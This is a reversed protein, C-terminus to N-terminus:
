NMTRGDKAHEICLECTPCDQLNGRWLDRSKEMEKFRESISFGMMLFQHAHEIPLHGKARMLEEMEKLTDIIQKQKETAM